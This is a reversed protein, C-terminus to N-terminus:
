AVSPGPPCVHGCAEFEEFPGGGTDEPYEEIRVSQREPRKKPEAAGGALPNRWQPFHHCSVRFWIRHQFLGITRRVADDGLAPERLKFRNVVDDLFQDAELAVPTCPSPLRAEISRFGTAPSPFFRSGSLRGPFGTHSIQM